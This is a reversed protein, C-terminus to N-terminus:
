HRRRTRSYRKGWLLWRFRYGCAHCIFPYIYAASLMRETLGVRRSRMVHNKKCRPCSIRSKHWVGGRLLNDPLPEAVASPEDLREYQPEIESTRNIDPSATTGFRAAFVAVFHALGHHYM